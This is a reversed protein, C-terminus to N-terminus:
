LNMLDHLFVGWPQDTVGQREFRERKDASHHVMIQEEPCFFAGCCDGSQIHDILDNLPVVHVRPTPTM